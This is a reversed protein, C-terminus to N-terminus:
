LADFIKRRPSRSLIYQPKLIDGCLAKDGDYRRFRFDCCPSLQGQGTTGCKGCQFEENRQKNKQKM